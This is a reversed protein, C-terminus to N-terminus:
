PQLPDIWELRAFRRFGSDHSALTLGNGIALAALHVDMVDAASLGPTGMLDAAISAHEPGESVMRARPQTRLTTVADWAAPVALASDGLIRRHSLLRCTAYLVPWCLGVSEDAGSLRATLWRRAAEHQPASRVLAYVLINTDILLSV